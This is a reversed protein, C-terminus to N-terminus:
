SALRTAPAVRRARRARGPSDRLREVAHRALESGRTAPEAVGALVADDDVAVIVHEPERADHAARRALDAVLRGLHQELGGVEVGHGHGPRRLSVPQAAFRRCRKSRPTSGWSARRATARKTADQRWLTGSSSHSRSGRSTRPSTGDGDRRRAGDPRRRVVARPRARRGLLGQTMQRPQAERDHGSLVVPQTVAGRRAGRRADLAERAAGVHDFLEGSEVSVPRQRAVRRGPGFGPPRVPRWTSRRRSRSTTTSRPTKSAHVAESPLSSSKSRSSSPRGRTRTM